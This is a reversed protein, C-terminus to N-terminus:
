DRREDAAFREFVKIFRKLVPEFNTGSSRVGIPTLIQEFEADGFQAFRTAYNSSGNTVSNSLFGSM